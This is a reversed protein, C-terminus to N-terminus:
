KVSVYADLVDGGKTGLLIPDAEHLVLSKVMAATGAKYTRFHASAVHAEYASSDTYMEFLRVRTPDRKLQVAYLTLVGPETRISTEIEQRLFGLYRDLQAPEIELEALRVVPRRPGNGTQMAKGEVRQRCAPYETALLERAWGGLYNYGIGREHEIEALSSRVIGDCGGFM